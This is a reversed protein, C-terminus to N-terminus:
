YAGSGIRTNSIGFGLTANLTHTTQSGHRIVDELGVRVGRSILRNAGITLSRGFGSGSTDNVGDYRVIAFTGHPLQYRLQFFGGSSAVGVGDGDPSTDFGTQLLTEVALRGRYLNVGFARRRFDDGIPGLDRRGAYDYVSLVFGGLAEQAQFM